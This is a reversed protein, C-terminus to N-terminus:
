FRIEKQYIIFFLGLSECRGRMRGSMGLNVDQLSGLILSACGCGSYPPLDWSCVGVYVSAKAM